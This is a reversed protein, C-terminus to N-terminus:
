ATMQGRKRARWRAVEGVVRGVGELMDVLMKERRLTGKEMVRPKIRGEIAVPRGAGEIWDKALLCIQIAMQCNKGMQTERKWCIMGRSMKMDKGERVEVEVEDEVEVEVEVGELGRRRGM